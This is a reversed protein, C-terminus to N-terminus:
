NLLEIAEKLLIEKKLFDNKFDPNKIWQEKYMSDLLDKLYLSAESVNDYTDIALKLYDNEYVDLIPLFEKTDCTKQQQVLM